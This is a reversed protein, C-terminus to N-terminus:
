WSCFWCPINGKIYRPTEEDVLLELNGQSNEGFYQLRISYVFGKALEFEFPRSQPLESAEIRAPLDYHGHGWNLVANFGEAWGYLWGDATANELVGRVPLPEFGELKGVEIKLTTGRRAERDTYFPQVDGKSFTGCGSPVVHMWYGETGPGYIANTTLFGNQYYTASPSRFIAGSWKNQPLTPDFNLLAEEKWSWALFAGGMMLTGPEGHVKSVHKVHRTDHPPNPFGIIEAVRCAPVNYEFQETQVSGSTSTIKVGVVLKGADEPRLRFFGSIDEDVIFDGSINAPLIFAHESGQVEISISGIKATGQPVVEVPILYQDTNKKNLQIKGLDVFFEESATPTDHSVVRRANKIKTWEGGYTPASELRNTLNAFQAKADSGSTSPGSGAHYQAQSAFAFMFIVLFLVSKRM